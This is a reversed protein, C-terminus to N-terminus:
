SSLSMSKIASRPVATRIRRVKDRTGVVGYYLLAGILGLLSGGILAGKLLPVSIFFTAVLTTVGCAIAIIEFPRLLPENVPEDATYNFDNMTHEATGTM